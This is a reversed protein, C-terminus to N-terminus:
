KFSYLIRHEEALYTCGNIIVRSIDALAEMFKTVAADFVVITIHLYIIDINIQILILCYALIDWKGYEQSSAYIAADRRYFRSFWYTRESCTM